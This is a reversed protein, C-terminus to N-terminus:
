RNKHFFIFFQLNPQLERGPVNRASQTQRQLTKKPFLKRTRRKIGIAREFRISTQKRRSAPGQEPRFEGKKLSRAVESNPERVSSDSLRSGAPTSRRPKVRLGCLPAFVTSISCPSSPIGRKRCSSMGRIENGSPFCVPNFWPPVSFIVLLDDVCITRDDCTM